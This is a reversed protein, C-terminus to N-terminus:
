LGPSVSAIDTGNVTPFEKRLTNGVKAEALRAAEYRNVANAVERLGLAPSLQGSVIRGAYQNIVGYAAASDVAFPQASFGRNQLAAATFAQVNKGKLPPAVAEVLSAWDAWYAKQPPLVLQLRMLSESWAKSTTLWIAFEAALAPQKTHVNVAYYDQGTRSSSGQPWRPYPYFRWKLGGLSLAAQPLMWSGWTPCVIGGNVFSSPEGPAAAAIVGARVLPYYWEGFAAAEASGLACRPSWYGDAISAGWGKWMYLAPPGWVSHGFRPKAGRRAVASWLSQAEQYTWHDTPEPLGLADVVSLNVAVANISLEAPLAFVGGNKQYIAFQGQDFLATDVNHQKLHPALDLNAGAEILVTPGFGSYVDPGVGALIQSLVLGDDSWATPAQVSIDVGPHAKRFPATADHFIHDWGKAWGVRWPQWVIQLRTRVPQPLPAHTARACASLVGGAAVVMGGACSRRLLAQRTVGSAM